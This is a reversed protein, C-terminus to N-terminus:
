FRPRYPYSSTRKRKKAKKEQNQKWKAEHVKNLEESWVRICAVSLDRNFEQVPNLFAENSALLIHSTNETHLTYGDPVTIDSKTSMKSRGLSPLAKSTHRLPRFVFAVCILSTKVRLSQFWRLKHLPSPQRRYYHQLNCQARITRSCVMEEQAGSGHIRHPGKSLGRSKESALRFEQSARATRSQRQSQIEAPSPSCGACDESTYANNVLPKYIGNLVLRMSGSTAYRWPLSFVTPNILPSLEVVGGASCRM